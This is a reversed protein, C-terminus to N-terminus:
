QGWLRNLLSTKRPDFGSWEGWRDNASVPDWPTLWWGFTDASEPNMSWYCANISRKKFYTVAAEQWQQDVNTTIHSWQNRVAQSTKLPWDMNGGFEGILLGYGLDRLYGFHQEWGKELLESNIVIKCKAAAAEDGELGECGAQTPDIHHKQTFVSPGYTHPSFLVRDKPINIPNDGAEHLNEGWNPNVAKDGNPVEDKTDPTGDQNNASGSVGEVIVLLNPNVSDIAEYAHESLTKWDQWTYDWPENFIDIGVLNNIGLQAPLGAVEKLTALWKAETYDQIVKVSSPNGTASCSYGERTFDYGARTADVYPPRADIRGARWGVFNSCSHIDIFVQINEAAAAKLFDELGQRSNTQRVSEHNKLNPAKGQPDNADLTQPSIPLRLMTIGQAKLEKLGQAVTRGSGKGGNTWWMNGVYLEMPAGSPNTTDNSPEHRGELGFWNGCRAPLLTGDKTIQGDSNVRFKGLTSGQVSSSPKSSSTSPRSSSTSPVSSSSPRSSSTSPVSSSSPRSSSTSPVSSSSPRSSSAVSCSSGGVVGFPSPQTVCTSQTICSRNNEYGWGSATQTCIPYNTGYWNCQSGTTACNSSISSSVVSSSSSRPTSSSSSAISSPVSSSTVVSSCVSGTITPKEASSNNNKNGQVGFSVSQGPQITRNWDVNSASYPNSGSVTANWSSTIRNSSYQWGVTWGNIASSTNNTITITGQFGTNWENNLTYTCSGGGGGTSTGTSSTSTVTSSARSSTTATSSNNSQGESVTLDSSGSSQYGETALIQYDHQGLQLGKSAWFAAHNAFTVTGSINGFGKKPSRVSFYQYFTQTGDISPQQTRTCRRVNYTAGDSQFSGYDTGGNCTAPNYSGYSEIVYYEILPSRTWGYVALYTNQSDSGGYNGSYSITRSSSGPKWGKGGVWNNTGNTWQSSYRGAGYLTMTANGSDKWFSYYFGNNFDASNSSLVTQANAGVSFGLGLMVALGLAKKKYSQM